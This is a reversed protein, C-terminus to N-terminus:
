YEPAPSIVMNLPVIINPTAFTHILDLGKSKDQDRMMITTQLNGSYDELLAFRFSGMNPTYLKNFNASWTSAIIPAFYRLNLIGVKSDDMIRGHNHLEYTYVKDGTTVAMIYEPGYGPPLYGVDFPYYSVSFAYPTEDKDQFRFMQHLRLAESGDEEGLEYAAMFYSQDKGPNQARAKTAFLLNDFSQLKGPTYNRDIERITALTYAGPVDTRETLKSSLVTFGDQRAIYLNKNTSNYAMDTPPYNLNKTAVPAPFIKGTDPNFDHVEIRSGKRLVYVLHNFQLVAIPNYSISGSSLQYGTDTLECSSGIRHITAAGTHGDTVIVFKKNESVTILEPYEVTKLRSRFQPVPDQGVYQYSSITPAGTNLATIFQCSGAANSIHTLITVISLFMLKTKSFLQSSINKM